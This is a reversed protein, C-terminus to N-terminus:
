KSQLDLKIKIMLVSYNLGLDSLFILVSTIHRGTTRYIHVLSYPTIDWSALINIKGM